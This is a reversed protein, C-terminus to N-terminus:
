VGEKGGEHKRWFKNDWTNSHWKVWLILYLSGVWLGVPFLQCGSVTFPLGHLFSGGRLDVTILPCGHLCLSHCALGEECILWFFCVVLCLSHCDMCFIAEECTLWFFWVVLYMTITYWYRIAPCKRSTWNKRIATKLTKAILTLMGMICWVSKASRWNDVFITFIPGWSFM